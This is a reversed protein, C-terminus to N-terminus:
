CGTFYATIFDALDDANRVGDANVDIFPLPVPSTPAAVYRFYDTVYDSLDDTNLLGDRNYDPLCATSDIIGDNDLDLSPDAAIDSRDPRANRNRDFHPTTLRFVGSDTCAFLDGVGDRGFGVLRGLPVASRHRIPSSAAQGDIVFSNIDVSNFGGYLFRGAYGQLAPGRNVHGAIVVNMGSPFGSPVSSGSRNLTVLPPILDTPQPNPCGLGGASLGERCPWGFNQGGLYGSQGPMLAPDVAAQFNIEEATGAGVDGIFLQGTVPDFSGTYPQRLGITWIEPAAGQTTLFPNSLPAVFNRNPDSPFGDDDPTGPVGDHGNIDFRLLKAFPTALSQGNNSQANDGTGVYLFGDRPGFALFGGIHLGPTGSQGWIVQESAPDAATASLPNGIARFRSVRFRPQAIATYYLYFFGNEAYNPHFALGLIGGESPMSVGSTINLFPASQTTNTVLDFLRIRGGREAIFLRRTDGTPASATISFFSTGPLLVATLPPPPPPSQGFASTSVAGCILALSRQRAIAPRHKRQSQM